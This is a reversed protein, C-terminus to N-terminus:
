PFFFEFTLVVTSVMPETIRPRHKGFCFDLCTASELGSVSPHITRVLTPRSPGDALGPEGAVRTLAPEGPECALGSWLNPPGLRRVRPSQDAAAQAGPPCLHTATGSVVHGTFGLIDSIQGRVSSIHAATLTLVWPACPVPGLGSIPMEEELDSPAARWQSGAQVLSVPLPKRVRVRSEWPLSRCPALRHAPGGGRGRLTPRLVPAVVPQSETRTSARM